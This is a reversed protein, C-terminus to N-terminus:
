LNLDIYIYVMCLYYKYPPHFEKAFGLATEIFAEKKNPLNIIENERELLAHRPYEPVLILPEVSEDFDLLKLLPKISYIYIYM